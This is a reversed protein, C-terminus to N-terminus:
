QSLRYGFGYVTEILDKPLGAAALKKRLTKVHTKIAEKGPLEDHSWLKDLLEEVNFIVSPNRAFHLLLRYETPTLDIAKGDFSM